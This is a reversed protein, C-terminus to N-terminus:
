NRGGEMMKMRHSAMRADVRADREGLWRVYERAGVKKGTEYLVRGGLIIATLTFMWATASM